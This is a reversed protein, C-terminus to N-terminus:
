LYPDSQLVLGEDRMKQIFRLADGTLHSGDERQQGDNPAATFLCGFSQHHFKLAQRGIGCRKFEGGDQDLYMRKLCYDGSGTGQLEISGLKPGNVATVTIEQGSDDIEIDVLRGDSLRCCQKLDDSSVVQLSMGGGTFVLAASIRAAEHDLPEGARAPFELDDVM